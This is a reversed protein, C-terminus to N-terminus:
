PALVENPALGGDFKITARVPNAIGHAWYYASLISDIDESVTVIYDKKFHLMTGECNRLPTMFLLKKLHVFIPIGDDLKTLFIGKM